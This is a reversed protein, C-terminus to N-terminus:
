PMGHINLRILILLVPQGSRIGSLKRKVFIRWSEQRHIFLFDQGTARRSLRVHPTLVEDRYRQGSIKGGHIRLHPITRRPPQRTECPKGYINLRIWILLVPEGSRIGSIKRKLFIRWSEQRHREYDDMFLFDSGTADRFLRM